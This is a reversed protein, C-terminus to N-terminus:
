SVNSPNGEAQKVEAALAKAESNLESLKQNKELLLQENYAAQFQLFGCEAYISAAERQIDDLTRSM